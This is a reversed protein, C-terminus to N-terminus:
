VVSPTLYSTMMSLTPLLPMRAFRPTSVGVPLYTSIPPPPGSLPFHIPGSILGTLRHQERGEDLLIEVDQERLQAGVLERREALEHRVALHRRHDVPAVTEGLRGLGDAVQFGAARAALHDDNGSPRISCARRRATRTPPRIPPAPSM